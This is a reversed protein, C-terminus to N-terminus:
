EEQPKFDVKQEPKKKNVDRSQQKDAGAELLV